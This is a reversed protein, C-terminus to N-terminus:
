TDDDVLGTCFVQQTLTVAQEQRGATDGLHGAHLAGKHAIGFDGLNNSVTSGM